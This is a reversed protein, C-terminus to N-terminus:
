FFFGLGANIIKHRNLHEFYVDCNETSENLNMNYWGKFNYYINLLVVTHSTFVHDDNSDDEEQHHHHNPQQYKPFPHGFYPTICVVQSIQLTGLNM